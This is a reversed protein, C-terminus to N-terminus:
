IYVVYVSELILTILLQRFGFFRLFPSTLSELSWFLLRLVLFFYSFLIGPLTVWVYLDCLSLKREERPWVATSNM